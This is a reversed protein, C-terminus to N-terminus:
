EEDEEEFSRGCHPCTHIPGPVPEGRVDRVGAPMGESTGQPLDEGSKGTVASYGVPGLEGRAVRMAERLNARKWGNEAAKKLWADREKPPLYAVEAHTGFALSAIRREPPIRRAVSARNSITSPSLGIANEIQAYTEGYVMEGFIVLDGVWWSCARNMEGIFAGLEEYVDWPLDPDVLTLSTSTVVAGAAELASRVAPPDAM